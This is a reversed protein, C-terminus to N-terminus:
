TSATAAIGGTPPMAGEQMDQVRLVIKGRTHGAESLRHAEAAESLDMVRIEPVRLVGREFLGLLQQLSAGDARHHVFEAKV